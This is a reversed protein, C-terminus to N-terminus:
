PATHNQGSGAIDALMDLMSVVEPVRNLLLLALATM